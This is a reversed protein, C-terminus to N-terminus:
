SLTQDTGMLIAITFILIRILRGEEKIGMERQLVQSGLSRMTEGRTKGEMQEQEKHRQLHCSRRRSHFLKGKHLHSRHGVMITIIGLHDERRDMSIRLLPHNGYMQIMSSMMTTRILEMGVTEKTAATVSKPLAEMNVIIGENCMTYTRPVLSITSIMELTTILILQTITL